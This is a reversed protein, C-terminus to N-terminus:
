SNKIQHLLQSCIYKRLQDVSDIVNISQHNIRTLQDLIAHVMCNGDGITFPQTKSYRFGLSTVRQEGWVYADEEENSKPQDQLKITSLARKRRKMHKGAYFHVKGLLEKKLCNNSDAIRLCVTNHDSCFNFFVHQM